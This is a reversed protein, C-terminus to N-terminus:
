RVWEVPRVGTRLRTRCPAVGAEVIAFTKGAHGIINTNPGFAGTIPGPTTLGLQAKTQWSAVYRNRYWEAKGGRLRVGHVMGNGVFWHHALSDVDGIPNPGNRLSRGEAKM